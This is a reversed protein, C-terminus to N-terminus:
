GRRWFLATLPWVVVVAYATSAIIRLTTPDYITWVLGTGSFLVALLLLIRTACISAIARAMELLSPSLDGDRPGAPEDSVIAFRPRGTPDALPQQDSPNQGM